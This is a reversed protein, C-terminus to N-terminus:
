ASKRRLATFLLYAGALIIAVSWLIGSQAGLLALLVALVGLVITVTRAWLKGHRLWIVAFAVGVGAFLVASAIGGGTDNEVKGSIAATTVLAVSILSCAPILPWWASPNRFYVYLFPLGAALLFVAGYYPASGSTLAMIPALGIVTIIYAVLLAWTRTREQMWVIFFALAIMLLFLAGVWEGRASDALLVVFVLFLMLGGPILAWWNRSRDTLYAAAFPIALGIFLTAALAPNDVGRILFALILALAGCIGAPFLWGWQRWGSLAYSAVSLLSVAAFVWIWVEDPLHPMLGAQQALAVAGAVVLLLGWLLSPRRITM